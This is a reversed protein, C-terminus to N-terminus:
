ILALAIVVTAVVGSVWAVTRIAPIGAIYVIAHIVRAALFALAALRTAPTSVDAAHAVLVAIAFPLANELLNLHARAARRAAGTPQPINERNGIMAPQGVQKGYLASAVLALTLVLLGTALLTYLEITM